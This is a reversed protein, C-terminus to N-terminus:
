ATMFVEDNGQINTHYTVTRYTSGPYGWSWIHDGRGYTRGSVAIYYTLGSELSYNLRYSYDYMTYPNDDNSDLEIGSSNYLTVNPDYGGTSWFTYSTSQTPRVRYWKQQGSFEIEAMYGSEGTLDLEYGTSLGFETYYSWVAYLTLNSTLDIEDGPLLVPDTASSNPSWGLFTYRFRTPTEEAIYAIDGGTVTTSTPMNEVTNTTNKNYTIRYTAAQAPVGLMPVAGLMLVVCLLVSIIEKKM